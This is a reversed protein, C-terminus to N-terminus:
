TRRYSSLFLGRVGTSGGDNMKFRTVKMESLRNRWDKSFDDWVKSPAVYGALVLLDPSGTGSGDIYAKFEKTM